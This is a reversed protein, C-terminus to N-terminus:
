DERRLMINRWSIEAGECQFGIPGEILNSASSAALIVDNLVSQFTGDQSTIELTNWEGVPNRSQARAEPDDESEVAAAGGIAFIKGIDRNMGQVEICPPWVTHPTQIHMLYGSNGTFDEDNELGEPRTFRFDLRLTYNRFSEVTAWYGIDGAACKLVGDEVILQTDSIGVLEMGSTDQGNFLPEFDTDSGSCASLFLGALVMWLPLSLRTMTEEIPGKGRTMLWQDGPLFRTCAFFCAAFASIVSGALGKIDM